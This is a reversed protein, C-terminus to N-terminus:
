VAKSIIVAGLPTAVPLLPSLVTMTVDLLWLGNRRFQFNKRTTIKVRPYELITGDMTTVKIYKEIDAPITPKTWIDRLDVTTKVGGLLRVIQDIDTDMCQWTITEKGVETFSAKPTTNMEAYHDTTSGEEEASNFTDRYVAEKMDVAAAIVGSVPTIDGIEFASIGYSYKSM